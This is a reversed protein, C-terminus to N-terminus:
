LTRAYTHTRLGFMIHTDEGDEGRWRQYRATHTTSQLLGPPRPPSPGSTELRKTSCYFHISTDRPRVGPGFVDSTYWVAASWSTSPTNTLFVLARDEGGGRVTTSCLCTLTCLLQKNLIELHLPWGFIMLSVEWSSKIRKSVRWGRIKIM